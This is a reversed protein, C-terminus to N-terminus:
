LKHGSLFEAAKDLRIHAIGQGSRFAGDPLSFIMSSYYQELWEQAGNRAKSLIGVGDEPRKGAFFAAQKRSHEITGRVCDIQQGDYERIEETTSRLSALSVALTQAGQFETRRAADDTLAQMLATLKDHQVQHLHDAKTAGFFIRTIQPGTFLRGFLSNRGSRFAGLIDSMTERLDDLAAQGQHLTGLLDIVVIQRDTRSFHDKFFPRVVKSKYANYRREMERWLSKRNGSKTKLLPSFTLVPSGILEGPLLFRGLKLDRLGAIRAAKLYNRFEEAAMRAITKDFPATCDLSTAYNLYEQVFRRKKMRALVQDCWQSYSKTLLGLDLVWGGPYDILDIHQVKTGLLGSIINSPRIKLSLRLQSIASTNEPWVPRLANLLDINQEYDFRGVTDDPQPQLYSSVIHRQAMASLLPMRGGELMNAVLSTIFVTKGSRALGTVGLRIPAGFVTDSIQGSM